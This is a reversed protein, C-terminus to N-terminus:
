PPAVGFQHLEAADLQEVAAVEVVGEEDPVGLSAPKSAAHEISM